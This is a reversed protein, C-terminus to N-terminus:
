EFAFVVQPMPQWLVFLAILVLSSALVYTSREATRPVAQTLWRKFWPRAMVSHQAGFLVLLGMNVVLALGFSGPEGSDISKPIVPANALFAILYLFTAFFIAYSAVGYTLAGIRRITEM